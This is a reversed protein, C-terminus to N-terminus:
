PSVGVADVADVAYDTRVQPTALAQAAARANPGM